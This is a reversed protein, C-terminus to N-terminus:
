LHKLLFALSAEIVTQSTGPVRDNKYGKAHKNGPLEVYVHAAHVSTMKKDMARAVAVPIREYRSHVFYLPPDSRDVYNIPSAARAAQECEAESDCGLLRKVKTENTPSLDAMMLLDMPASWTVAAKVGAGSNFQGNTMTSLMAAMQGGASVGFAGLRSSDLDYTAAQSRIWEVAM